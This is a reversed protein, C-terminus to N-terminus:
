ARVRKKNNFLEAMMEKFTKTRPMIKIDGICGTELFQAAQERAEDATRYKEAIVPQFTVSKVCRNRREFKVILNKGTISIRRTGDQSQKRYM